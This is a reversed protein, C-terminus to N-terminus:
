KHCHVVINSHVKKTKNEIYFPNKSHETVNLELLQISIVNKHTGLVCNAFHFILFSVFLWLLFHKYVPVVAQLDYVEM